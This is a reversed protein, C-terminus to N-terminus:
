FFFNQIMKCITYAVGTFPSAFLDVKGIKTAKVDLKSDISFYFNINNAFIMFENKESCM